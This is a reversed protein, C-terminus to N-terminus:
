AGALPNALRTLELLDVTASESAPTEVPVNMSRTPRASLDGAISGSAVALADSADPDALPDGGAPDDGNALVRLPTEAALPGAPESDASAAAPAPPALSQGWHGALIGLDGVDVTGDGNFDAGSWDAPGNWHGALVGLDGVDVAGDGTADGPLVVHLLWTLDGGPTGDGDGDLANGDADAVGASAIAVDYYGAELSTLLTWTATRDAPNWSVTAGALDVPQGTDAETIALDGADLSGSVDESFVARLGSVVDPRDNGPETGADEGQPAVEDTTGPGILQVDDFWAVDGAALGWLVDVRSFSGFTAGTTFTTTLEVWGGATDAVVTNSPSVIGAGDAYRILLEAPQGSSLDAMVYGRLTYTTEPQLSVGQFSYQVSPDPDTVKLSASGTRAVTQDRSASARNWWDAPYGTGDDTEFSGNSVLGAALSFSYTESSVDSMAYGAAVASAQVQTLGTLTIPGAYVPSAATPESGDLTYHITAGSTASTMEVSVASGYQGGAPSIVPTSALPLTVTYIVQDAAQLEGDDASLELVYTGPQDFTVATDVASPDAIDASGGTPADIVAWQTTVSGPPNPLFDDVVSGDLDVTQQTQASADPGADVQPAQNSPPTGPHYVGDYTNDWVYNPGDIPGGAESVFPTGTRLQDVTNHAVEYKGMLPVGDNPGAALYGSNYLKVFAVFSDHLTNGLIKNGYFEYSVPKSSGSRSDLSVFTNIGHDCVNDQVLSYESTMAAFSPANGGVMECGDIVIYKGNREEHWEYTGDGDVDETFDDNTLYLLGGQRRNGSMTTNVVGSVHAGDLYLAYPTDGDIHCNMLWVNDMGMAGCIVGRHFRDGPDRYNQWTCSEFVVDNVRRLMMSYLQTGGGDFTLNKFYFNSQPNRFAEWAAPDNTNLWSDFQGYDVMLQSGLLHNFGTITAEGGECVIHVGSRDTISFGGYVGGPALQIIGGGAPLANIASQISNGYDAVDLVPGDHTINTDYNTSDPNFPHAEWWQDVPTGRVPLDIDPVGDLLLRPELMEMSPVCCRVFYHSRDSM